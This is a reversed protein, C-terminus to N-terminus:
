VMGYNGATAFEDDVVKAGTNIDYGSIPSVLAKQICRIQDIMQAVQAMQGRKAFAELKAAPETFDDYGVTGGAGKLWHTLLSLEEMDGHEYAQRMKNVQSDCKEIFDNIIRHFKPNAAM